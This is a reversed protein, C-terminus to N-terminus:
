NLVQDAARRSRLIEGDVVEKDFLMPNGATDDANHRGLYRKMLHTGPFTPNWRNTLGEILQDVNRIAQQYAELRNSRLLEPRLIASELLRRRHALYACFEQLPRLQMTKLMMGMLSIADGLEGQIEKLAALRIVEHPLDERPLCTESIITNEALLIDETQEELARLASIASDPTNKLEIPSVQRLVSKREISFSHASYHYPYKRLIYADGEEILWEESPMNMKHIFRLAELFLEPDVEMQSCLIHEVCNTFLYYAQIELMPDESRFGQLAELVHPISSPDQTILRRMRGLKKSKARVGNDSALSEREHAVWHHLAAEDAADWASEDTTSLLKM